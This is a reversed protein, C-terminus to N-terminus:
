VNKREEPHADYWLAILPWTSGDARIAAAVVIGDPTTFLDRRADYGVQELWACQRNLRDADASLRAIQQRLERERELAFRRGNKVIREAREEDEPTWETPGRPHCTCNDSFCSGMRPCPATM